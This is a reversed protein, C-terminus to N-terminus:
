TSVGNFAVIDQVKSVVVEVMLNLANGNAVSTTFQLIDGTQLQLLTSGPAALGSYGIVGSTGFNQLVMNSIGLSIVTNGGAFRQAGLAVQMANSVGLAIARASQVVCPYPVMAIWATAGTAVAASSVFIYDEKRESPDRDRNCIAM